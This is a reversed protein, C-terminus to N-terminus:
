TCDFCIKICHLTYFGERRGSRGVSFSAARERKVIEEGKGSLKLEDFIMSRVVLDPAVGIEDDDGAAGHLLGHVSGGAQLGDVSAGLRRLGGINSFHILLIYVRNSEAM